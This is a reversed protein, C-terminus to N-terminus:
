PFMKIIDDLFFYFLGLLLYPDVKNDMTASSLSLFMMTLYFTKCSALRFFLMCYLM